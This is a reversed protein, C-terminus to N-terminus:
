LQKVWFRSQLSTKCVEMMTMWLREAVEVCVRLLCISVGGVAGRGEPGCVCFGEGLCLGGKRFNVM